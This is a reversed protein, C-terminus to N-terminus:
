DAATKRLMMLSVMRGTVGERRYSFFREGEQWTCCGGGHVTQVGAAILRQRALAYLDARFRGEADVQFAASVTQRHAESGAANLFAERVDEGVQFAAPGIAPGLWAVIRDPESRFHALTSELVGAVLGRWGAHALGIERGQADCLFVPLCDATLIALPIDPVDTYLADAELAEPVVAAIPLCRSGHVQTLWQPETPLDLDSVLLRRNEAVCVSDDGVHDAPNFSDWPSQSVGGTRTSVAALVPVPAPWDPRLWCRTM